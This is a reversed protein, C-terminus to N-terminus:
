LSLLLKPKPTTPAITPIMCICEAREQFHERCLTFSSRAKKVDPSLPLPWIITPISNHIEHCNKSPTVRFSNVGAWESLRSLKKVILESQFEPVPTDVLICASVHGQLFWADEGNWHM